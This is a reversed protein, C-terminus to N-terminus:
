AQPKQRWLREVIPMVTEASFGRRLLYGGLRRQFSSRDPANAYRGVVSRALELARKREDDASGEEALAQEITARDVGKRRLENRLAVTGRPRSQRRSEVWFRSFAPDDIMGLESLRELAADIAEAAFGKRLLRLRVEARSRPRLALYRLAARYARDASEAAELRAWDAEDIAKGVFLGERSLTTLSVGIAFAGDIFVNVRQGDREQARLATITGTPM